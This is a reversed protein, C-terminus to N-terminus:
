PVTGTCTGADCLATFGICECAIAPRPGCWLRAAALEKDYLGKSTKAIATNACDCVSCADGLFVAVCDADVACVRSLGQDTIVTSGCATVLVLLLLRRM